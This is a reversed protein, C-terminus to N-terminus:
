EGNAMEMQIDVKRFGLENSTMRGKYCGLLARKLFGRGTLARLTGFTSATCPLLHTLSLRLKSGLTWSDDARAGPPRGRVVM